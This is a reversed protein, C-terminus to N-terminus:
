DEPLLRLSAEVAADLFRLALDVQAAASGAAVLTDGTLVAGMWGTTHWRGVPLTSLRDSTSRPWHNVYLYPQAYSRDGPSMGIGVSRTAEPGADPDLVLLFASDLHHPWSRIPRCPDHTDRMHRLLADANGFWRELAEFEAIENYTFPDSSAVPHHPLDHELRVLPTRDGTLGAVADAMWTYAEHLTRGHLHLRDVFRDGADILELTLDGVRLSARVGAPGPRTVFRFVGSDVRGEFSTHSFDPEAPVHTQAFSAAVQAAWHVQLRADVLRFPSAQGLVQWQTLLDQLM